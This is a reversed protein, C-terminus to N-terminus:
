VPLFQQKDAQAHTHEVKHSMIKEQTYVQYKTFREVSRTEM